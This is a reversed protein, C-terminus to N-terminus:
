TCAQGVGTIQAATAAVEETVRAVKEIQRQLADQKGRLAVVRDALGDLNPLKAEFLGLRQEKLFIKAEDELEIQERALVNRLAKLRKENTRLEEVKEAAVRKAEAVAEAAVVRAATAKARNEQQAERQARRDFDHALLVRSAASIEKALDTTVDEDLFSAVMHVEMSSISKAFVFEAHPDFALESHGRLHRLFARAVIRTCNVSGLWAELSWADRVLAATCGHEEDDCKSHIAEAKLQSSVQATTQAMAADVPARREGLVERTKRELEAMEAEKTEARATAERRTLDFERAVGWARALDSDARSLEAGTSRAECTAHRLSVELAARAAKENALEAVTAAHQRELKQLREIMEQAAAQEKGRVM